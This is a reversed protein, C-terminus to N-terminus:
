GGLTSLGAEAVPGGGDVGRGAKGAEAGRDGIPVAGILRLPDPATRRGRDLDVLMDSLAGGVLELKKSKYSCSPIQGVGDSFSEEVSALGSTELVSNCGAALISLLCTIELDEEVVKETLLQSAAIEANGTISSKDSGAPLGLISKPCGCM